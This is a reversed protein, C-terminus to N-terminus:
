TRRREAGPCSLASGPRRSSLELDRVPSLLSLHALYSVAQDLAQFSTQSQLAGKGIPGDSELKSRLVPPIVLKTEMALTTVSGKTDRLVQLKSDVRGGGWVCVSMRENKKNQKNTQKAKGRRSEQCHPAARYLCPFGSQGQGEGGNYGTIQSLTRGDAPTVGSCDGGKLGHFTFITDYTPSLVKQKRFLCKSM